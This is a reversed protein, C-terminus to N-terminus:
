LLSHANVQACVRKCLHGHQKASVARCCEEYSSMSNVEKQAIKMASCQADGTSSQAMSHKRGQALRGSDFRAPCTQACGLLVLLKPNRFSRTQVLVM